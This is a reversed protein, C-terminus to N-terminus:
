VYRRCRGSVRGARYIKCQQLRKQKGCFAALLRGCRCGFRCGYDRVGSGCRVACQGNCVVVVPLRAFAGPIGGLRCSCDDERFASLPLYGRIRRSVCEGGDLPDAARGSCSCAGRRCKGAARRQVFHIMEARKLPVRGVGHMVLQIFRRLQGGYVRQRNSRSLSGAAVLTKRIDAVDKNVGRIGIQDDVPIGRIRDYVGRRAVHRNGRYRRGALCENNRVPLVMRVLERYTHLFLKFVPQSRGGINLNPHGGVVVSGRIGYSKFYHIPVIGVYPNLM